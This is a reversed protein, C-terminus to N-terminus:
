NLITKESKERFYGAAKGGDEGLAATLEANESELAKVRAKLRENEARVSDSIREVLANIESQLRRLQTGKLRPAPDSLPNFASGSEAQIEEVLSRVLAPKMKLVNRYKNQFRLALKADGGALEYIVSRASRGDRKGLLVTKVLTREEEAGFAHVEQATLTEGDLYKASFAENRSKRVLEYYANRVSGRALNNQAGYEGFIETLTKGESKGKRVADALARARQNNKKEM